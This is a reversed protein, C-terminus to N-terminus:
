AAQLRRAPSPQQTTSLAPALQTRRGGCNTAGCPKVDTVSTSRSRKSPALHPEAKHLRLGAGCRWRIRSCKCGAWCRKRSASFTAPCGTLVATLTHWWCGGQLTVGPRLEYAPLGSSAAAESCTSLPRLFSACTQPSSAVPQQAGQHRASWGGASRGGGGGAQRSHLGQDVLGQGGDGGVLLRCRRDAQEATAKTRPLMRQEAKGGTRFALRSHVRACASARGQHGTRASVMGRRQGHGGQLDLQAGGRPQAEQPRGLRIGDQGSHAGVQAFLRGELCASGSGSGRLGIHRCPAAAAPPLSRM